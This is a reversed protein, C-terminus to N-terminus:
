LLSQPIRSCAHNFDEVTDLEMSFYSTTDVAYINAGKKIINEFAAEYFVNSLGQHIIMDDLEEYLTKVLSASFKEIGISEGIADKISCTKSIESIKNNKDVILKIEEEGLEHKNLALCNPEKYQLLSKVIQQDFLIDSDLLLMDNGEIFSKAMWLSYINNTSAYKENHIYTVSLNPYTLKVFSKIKEELYGTVILIDRIDNVLLNDIARQLLCKEGIKLLCKPTNDTLPRLRSAIGAALIIAKM